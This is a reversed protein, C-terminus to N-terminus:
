SPSRNSLKNLSKLYYSLKQVARGRHSYKNKEEASMEAFTRTEGEVVFIPDYGFGKQGKASTSIQGNCVGTFIKTANSIKLGIASKFEAYRDKEYRMLRLIGQCGITKFVFSSFVGPFGNLAEIFLGSDEIIFSSKLKINNLGFKVVEELSAAQLEPYNINKQVIAYGLPELKQKVEKFKGKNSTVFYLKKSM